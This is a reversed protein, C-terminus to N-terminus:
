KSAPVVNPVLAPQATWQAPFVRELNAVKPRDNKVIYDDNPNLTLFNQHTAEAAFFGKVPEITTVIPAPFLKAAGLQAIYAQAIQKQQGDLPFLASRYQTGKDDGQHNLETPNNTVSFFVQLLKGYSVQSPDFSVQVAEAHGTAGASVQDYHATDAAGGIYGSVANTVGKVHQFVAQVGWFCGGAFIATETHRGAVPEDSAPAPLIVVPGAAHAIGVHLAAGLLCAIGLQKFSPTRPIHTM